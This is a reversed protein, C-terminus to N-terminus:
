KWLQQLQELSLLLSSNHLIFRLFNLRLEVQKLHPMRSCLVVSDDAAHKEKDTEKERERNTRFHKRARQKYRNFDAFFAGLLDHSKQLAEVATTKTQDDTWSSKPPFSDAVKWCVQLCQPVSDSRAVCEICKAMLPLRQEKLGFVSILEVLKTESLRALAPPAQSSDVMWNWLLELSRLALSPAKYISSKALDVIFLITAEQLDAPPIADVEEFIFVLEQDTLSTAVDKLLQYIALRSAEDNSLSCSWAARLISSDLMKLRALFQLLDAAREVVPICVSNGAFIDEAVREKVLWKALFDSTLWVAKGFRVGDQVDSITKFGFMKREMLDCRYCKLAVTLSFLECAQGVEASSFQREMMKPILGERPSVLKEMVQFSLARVHNETMYFVNTRVADNFKLMYSAGFHRNLVMRSNVLVQAFSEILEVPAAPKVQARELEPEPEPEAGPKAESNRETETQVSDAQADNPPGNVCLRQLMASFGGAKGICNVAAVLSANGYAKGHECAYVAPDDPDDEDHFDEFEGGAVEARTGYRALRYSNVSLWESEVDRAGDKGACTVKIHASTDNQNYYTNPPQYEGAELRDSVTGPFWQRHTYDQIDCRAGIVLSAKWAELEKAARVSKTRHPALDLSFREVWDDDGEYGGDYQVRVKQNAPNVEIIQGTVWQRSKDWATKLVDVHDAFDLSMRWATTDGDDDETDREGDADRYLPHKIDICEAMLQCLPVSDSPIMRVCYQLVEQVLAHVIQQAQGELNSHQLLAVTGEKVLLPVRERSERQLEAERRVVTALVRAYYCPERETETERQGERDDCSDKLDKVLKEALEAFAEVTSPLEVDELVPLPPRAAAAVEGKGGSESMPEVSLAEATEEATEELLITGQVAEEEVSEEPSSLDAAGRHKDAWGFAGEGSM